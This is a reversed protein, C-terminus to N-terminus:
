IVFFLRLPSVSVVIIIVAILVIATLMRQQLNNM